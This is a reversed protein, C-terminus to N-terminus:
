HFSRTLLNAIVHEEAWPKVFNDHYLLYQLSHHIGSDANPKSPFIKNFAAKMPSFGLKVIKNVITNEVSTGNLMFSALASCQLQLLPTDVAFIRNYFSLSSKTIYREASDIQLSQILISHHNRKGFGLVNKIIKGQASYLNNINSRKIPICDMSHFMLPAGVSKWLYVKAKTCLGPYTMGAPALAYVGRRCAGIRNEIHGSYNLESTVNVGLLDICKAFKVYDDKISINPNVKLLNKGLITCQTKRVGFKFRWNDAYDVCMDVLNQLGTSTSSFVTIDDAYACNNYKHNFVRVGNPSDDLSVLLDDIFVNFLTPSLISGQKMGKTIKFLDSYVSDWSVSAFSNNYWKYLYYWTVPSMKDSLKYLLGDHWISDFCKEADLSSIYVPSSRDNFYATIDTVFATVFATGRKERFGFQTGHICVDPLLFIEVLKSHVSSITIPRYNEPKNADLSSKKLIPIIIGTQLIEPIVSKSLMFSYVDSLVSCLADSM